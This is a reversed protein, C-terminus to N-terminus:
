LNLRGGASRLTKVIRDVDARSLSRQWESRVGRIVVGGDRLAVESIWDGDKLAPLAVNYSPLRLRARRSGTHLMRPVLRVSHGEAIPEFEMRIWRLRRALGVLPTPGDVSVDLHPALRILWEQVTAVSATIEWHVPAAVLTPTGPGVRLHVNGARLELRELSGADTEVDHATIRVEGYQGVSRGLEAGSMTIEDLVMTVDRDQIRFTKRHGILRERAADLVAGIPDLTAAVPMGVAKASSSMMDMWRRQWDEPRIQDFPWTAM